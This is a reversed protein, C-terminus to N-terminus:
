GGIVNHIRVYDSSCWQHQRSGCRLRRRSPPHHQLKDHLLIIMTRASPEVPEPNISPTARLRRSHHYDLRGAAIIKGKSAYGWGFILRARDSPSALLSGEDPYLEPHVHARNIHNDGARAAVEGLLISGQADAM